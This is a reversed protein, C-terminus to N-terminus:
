LINCLIDIFAKYYSKHSKGTVKKGLCIQSKEETVKIGTPPWYIFLVRLSKFRMPQTTITNGNLALDGCLCYM